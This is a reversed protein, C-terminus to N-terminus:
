SFLSSPAGASPHARKAKIPMWVGTIENLGFRDNAMSVNKQNIGPLNKQGKGFAYCAIDLSFAPFFAPLFRFAAL